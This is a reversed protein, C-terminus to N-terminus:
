GVFDVEFDDVADLFFFVGDGSFLSIVWFDDGGWPWISSSGFCSFLLWASSFRAVGSGDAGANSSSSSAFTASCITISCAGALVLESYGDRPSIQIFSECVKFYDLSTRYAAVPGIQFLFAAPLSARCKLFEFQSIHGVSHHSTISLYDQVPYRIAM